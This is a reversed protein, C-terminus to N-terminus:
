ELENFGPLPAEAYKSKNTKERPCKTRFTVIFPHARQGQGGEHERCSMYREQNRPLGVIPTLCLSELELM